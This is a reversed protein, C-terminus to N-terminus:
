SEKGEVVVLLLSEDSWRRRCLDVNYVFLKIAKDLQSSHFSQSQLRNRTAWLIIKNKEQSSKPKEFKYNNKNLVYILEEPTQNSQPRKINSIM